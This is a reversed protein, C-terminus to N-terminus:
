TIIPETRNFIDMNNILHTGHPPIIAMAMLILDLLKLARKIKTM